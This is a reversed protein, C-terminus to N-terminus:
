INYMSFHDRGARGRKEIIKALTKIKHQPARVFKYNHTPTASFAARTPHILTREGGERGRRRQEPRRDCLTPFYLFDMFPLDM